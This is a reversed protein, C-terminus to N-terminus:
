TLRALEMKRDKAVKKRSDKLVSNGLIVVEVVVICGESKENAQGQRQRESMPLLSTGSLNEKVTALASRAKALAEAQQVCDTSAVDEPSILALAESQEPCADEACPQSTGHM